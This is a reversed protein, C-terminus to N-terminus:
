LLAVSFLTLAEQYKLNIREAQRGNVSFEQGLDGRLGVWGSNM